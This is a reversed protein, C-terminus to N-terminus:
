RYSRRMTPTHKEDAARRTGGGEGKAARQATNQSGSVEPSVPDKELSRLTKDTVTQGRRGAAVEGHHDELEQDEHQLLHAAILGEQPPRPLM